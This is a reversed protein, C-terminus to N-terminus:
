YEVQQISLSQGYIRDASKQYAPTYDTVLWTHKGSRNIENAYEPHRELYNKLKEPLIENQCLLEVGQGIENQIEEKLFPYHTCGLILCEIDAQKLDSLYDKLIPASWQTGDHEILPVLMPTPKQIITLDPAIKLLEEEYVNSSITYNTGIVGLTKYGSEIATELTPVIVGLINVPRGSYEAPIFEQQLRRLAKASATNCATIILTCDQEDFLYRMARKTFDYIVADSRNGYPVRLTDGLYVIDLDPLTEAITKTILLGGLGSDFIGLKM